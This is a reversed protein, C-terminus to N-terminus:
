QKLTFTNMYTRTYKNHMRVYTYSLHFLLLIIHVRTKKKNTIISLKIFNSRKMNVNKHKIM